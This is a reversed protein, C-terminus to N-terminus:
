SRTARAGRDRAAAHTLREAIRRAVELPDFRRGLDLSPGARGLSERLDRDGLLRQMHEGAAEADGPEYFLATRDIGEIGLYSPIAPLVGALGSAAAEVAPMGLGEAATSGSVYIECSRYIEPVKRPHVGIRLEDIEPSDALEDSSPALRVLELEAGASRARAVAELVTAIGKFPVPALPGAPEPGVTLVRPHEARPLQPSPGFWSLEIPAGVVTSAVGLERQLTEQLHPAIVLKETPLRYVAELRAAASPWLHPEYGVCLQAVVPVGAALAPEVGPWGTLVANVSGDLAAAPEPHTEWSVEVPLWEPAPSDAIVIADHGLRRLANGILAVMIMGGSLEPRQNGLLAIKM